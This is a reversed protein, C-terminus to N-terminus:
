AKANTPEGAEIADAMDLLATKTIHPLDGDFVIECEKAAERLAAAKVRNLNQEETDMLVEFSRKVLDPSRGPKLDFAIEEGEDRGGTLQDTLLAELAERLREVTAALADLKAEAAEQRKRRAGMEAPVGLILFTDSVEHEAIGGSEKVANTLGSRLGDARAEAAEARQQWRDRDATLELTEQKAQRKYYEAWENVSSPEIM